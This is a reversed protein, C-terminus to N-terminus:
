LSIGEADLDKALLRESRRLEDLKETALILPAIMLGSALAIPTEAGATRWHEAPTLGDIVVLVDVDSDEHAEGRAYSGFLRVDRLREGFMGRLLERYQELPGRLSDPIPM